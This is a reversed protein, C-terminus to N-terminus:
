WAATSARSARSTYVMSRRRANSFARSCRGQQWQGIHVQDETVAHQAICGASGIRADNRRCAAVAQGHLPALLQGYTPAEHRRHCAGISALQQQNHVFGQLAQFLANELGHM